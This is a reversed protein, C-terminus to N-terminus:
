ESEKPFYKRCRIFQRYTLGFPNDDKFDEWKMLDKDRGNQTKNRTGKVEKVMDIPESDCDCQKLHRRANRKAMMYLVPQKGKAGCCKCEWTWTRGRM